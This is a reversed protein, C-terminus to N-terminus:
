DEQENPPALQCLEQHLRKLKDELMDLKQKEKEIIHPPAKTLFASDRLRADLQIARAKTIESEKELRQKEAVRDVIGAWPLLVEAEKLVLVLAEEKEPKRERHSLIALPQVRALNEIIETQPILKALLEDAYIYAEVWRDARVKHQARANRISRIIEITSDMVREAELDIAKNDAVPYPAIMISDPMRMNDNRASYLLRVRLTQWLEETIFPMFPHLLRLSKELTNVLLPLPSPTSQNRLRMKAIEIYWDCFKSWIFEYIRQAAEGFQFEGMM